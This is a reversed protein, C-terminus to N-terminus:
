RPSILPSLDGRAQRGKERSSGSSSVGERQRRDAPPRGGEDSDATSNGGDARTQRKPHGRERPQGPVSSADDIDANLPTAAQASPEGSVLRPPIREKPAGVVTEADDIDANVPPAAAVVRPQGAQALRPPTRERPSGVVSMADDIDAPAALATLACWALLLLAAPPRRRLMSHM